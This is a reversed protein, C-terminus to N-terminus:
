VAAAACYPAVHVSGGPRAWRRWKPFVCPAQQGTSADADEVARDAIIPAQRAGGARRATAAKASVGDPQRLHLMRFRKRTPRIVSPPEACARRAAVAAAGAAVALGGRTAGAEKASSSACARGCPGPPSLPLCAPPAARANASCQSRCPHRDAALTSRDRRRNPKSCQLGACWSM